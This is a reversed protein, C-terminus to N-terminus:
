QTNHKNKNKPTNKKNKKHHTTKNKHLVEIEKRSVCLFSLPECVLLIFTRLYTTALYGFVCCCALASVLNDQQM